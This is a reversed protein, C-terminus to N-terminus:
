PGFNQNKPWFNRRRFIIKKKSKENFGIFKLRILLLTPSLFLIKLPMDSASGGVDPMRLDLLRLHWTTYFEIFVLISWKLKRKLNEQFKHFITLTPLDLFNTVKGLFISILTCGISRNLQIFNRPGSNFWPLGMRFDGSFIRVWFFFDSPRMQRGQDTHWIESDYRSPLYRLCLSWLVWWPGFKRM